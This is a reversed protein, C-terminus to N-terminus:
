GIIWKFIVYVFIAVQLLLLFGVCTLITAAPIIGDMSIIASSFSNLANILPVPLLINVFGSVVVGATILTLIFLYRTM